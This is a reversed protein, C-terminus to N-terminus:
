DEKFKFHLKKTSKYRGLCCMTVASRNLNLALAAAKASPYEVGTELCVVPKSRGGPQGLVQHRHQLNESRSVWELNGQWNHDKHGDKHNVQPLGDPNPIFAEAVLRHVLCWKRRGNKSLLVQFYGKPTRRKKLYRGPHGNYSIVHGGGTVWYLGEYGPVPRSELLRDM